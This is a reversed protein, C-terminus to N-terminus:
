RARRNTERRFGLEALKSFVVELSTVGFNPIGLLDARSVNLLDGITMLGLKELKNCMCVDFVDALPIERKEELTVADAIRPRFAADIIAHAQDRNGRLMAVYVRRSFREADAYDLGYPGRELPQRTASDILNMADAYQGALLSGYVKSITSQDM